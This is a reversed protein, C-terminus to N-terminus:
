RGKPKLYIQYVNWSLTPWLASPRFNGLRRRGAVYMNPSVLMLQPLNESWIRQIDSSAKKRAAMDFTGINAYLADNLAGEWPTAPKPQLPAWAHSEGSSLLVNKSQAPDPPVASGWGLLLADFDRAHRMSSIVENFPAPRLHVTMGLKTLDDKIVNIMAIRSANESNTTISFEVHEGQADHLKGGKLVFGAEALLAKSRELDYAYKIVAQADYWEINGPSYYGHVPTGRGSMVTRVLGVRDIAHSVAKRFKVESFWRLKKAEVFPKGDKGNRQDLNFMMYYRQLAPGLDHITFNARAEDRKLADFHEPRVEIGDIEGDRFQLFEANFDRVIVFIIKDLYPLRNKQADVMWFRPNRELVIREGQVVKKIVFPGSSPMSKPDANLRLVTNFTGAQHAKSWAHKPIIPVSSVNVHFLVDPRNLKFRFSHRDLKEFTPFVPKGDASEGQRFLDRVSTVIAPDTLLQWNFEFDDATLPAGDSWTIGKRVHFTYTLGDESREYRECLSPVMRQTTNHFQMCTAYVPRLLRNTNRDGSSLPNLSSPMGTLSLVLKGGYLGVDGDVQHASAPAAGEFAPKPTGIPTTPGAKPKPSEGGGSSCAFALLAIGFSFVFPKRM